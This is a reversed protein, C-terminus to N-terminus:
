VLLLYLYLIAAVAMVIFTIIGLANSLKSNVFQDLIKRNNSIHLILLILIPAILGYLVASYILMTIPSIGIFNILLGIGLAILLVLYFGRAQNFKMDLGEKSDLIEAYIYSLSGALVPIALLGAGIVGLAFLLYSANGALPKLAIAAQQVTTINTIGASFLVTGATLIIFFMVINSFLMGIDVDFRMDRIVKKNVMFEKKSHRREEAESSAQWFFLYPSITTGLLAVLILLFSSNFQISPILTSTLVKQWNEKILFPVVFYALLALCLWKLISAIRRYKFKILALALIITFMISFFVASIQPVLLNSVAGIASIDAGINLIVASFTILVILYLVKKSYNKKIVGALGEHTVIAIRACMEQISIM